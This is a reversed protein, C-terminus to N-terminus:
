LKTEEIADAWYYFVPQELEGQEGWDSLIMMGKNDDDNSGVFLEFKRANWKKLTNYFATAGKQMEPIRDEKGQEKLLAAVRQLFPVFVSKKYESRKMTPVKTYNFVHSIENVQNGLQAAEEQDQAIENEEDLYVMKSKVIYIAGNFEEPQEITYADSFLESDTTQDIFVKM